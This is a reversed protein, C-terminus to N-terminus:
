PELGVRQTRGERLARRAIPIYTLAAYYSLLLGPIAFTWGLWHATTHWFVDSGGALFFPFAFLNCFTGAKGAWTVDIRSAGMAALALVAGSVALERVIVAWAVWPPVSGDILIAIVGVGLLLRDATPDLVKGLSSVQNFHRAIYGDVWDTAGLAGLLWAAGYRNDKSFLLWLFVPICALRILSLLNPVTFIRDEGAAPTTPTTAEADTM